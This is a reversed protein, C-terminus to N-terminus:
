HLVEYKIFPYFLGADVRDYIMQVPKKPKDLKVYNGDGDRIRMLEKMKQNLDLACKHNYGNLNTIMVLRYCKVDTIRRVFLRDYKTVVGRGGFHMAFTKLTTKAALQQLFDHVFPDDM